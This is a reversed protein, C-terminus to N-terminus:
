TIETFIFTGGSLTVYNRKGTVVDFMILQTTGTETVEITGTNITTVSITNLYSTGSAILNGHVTLNQTETESGEIYLNGNLTGGTLGLFSNEGPEFINTGDFSFIKKDATNIALEGQKIFGSEDGTTGTPIKGPTSTRKLLVRANKTIAM